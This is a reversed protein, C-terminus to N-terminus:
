RIEREVAQRAADLNPKGASSGSGAPKGSWISGIQSEYTKLM